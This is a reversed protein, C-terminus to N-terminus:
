CLLLLVLYVARLVARCVCLVAGRAVCCVCAFLFSLVDSTLSLVIVPHLCVSCCPFRVSFVLCLLFVFSHEGDLPLQVLVCMVSTHRIDVTDIVKMVASLAVSSAYKVSLKSSSTTGVEFDIQLKSLTFFRHQACAFACTAGQSFPPVWLRCRITQHAFTSFMANLHHLCAPVLDPQMVSSPLARARLGAEFGVKRDRLLIAM